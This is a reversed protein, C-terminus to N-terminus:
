RQSLKHVFEEGYLAEGDKLLQNIRNMLSWNRSNKGPEPDAPEKAPIDYGYCHGGGSYGAKVRGILGRRADIGLRASM